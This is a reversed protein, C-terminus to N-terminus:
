QGGGPADRLVFMAGSPAAPSDGSAGVVPADGAKTDTPDVDAGARVEGVFIAGGALRSPARSQGPDGDAGARAQRGGGRGAEVYFSHAGIIASPAAGGFNVLNAPVRGAAARDAVIRPNQFFRAGHTLDPLRGELALNIITDIRAQSAASVPRLNRWAGGARTVPEFQRPANLVADVTPGWRGDELRNLITYVVAALGSDGQNGAEAFAVRAIADRAGDLAMLAALGPEALAERGPAVVAPCVLGPPAPAAAGGHALLACLSAIAAADM